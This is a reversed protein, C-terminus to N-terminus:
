GWKMQTEHAVTLGVFGEFDIIHFCDAVQERLGRALLDAELLYIKVGTQALTACWANKEVGAVVADQLLLIEDAPGLYRLCRAMAQTQFPSTMVTHLM